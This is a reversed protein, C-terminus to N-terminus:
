VEKVTFRGFKPRWDFIGIEDGLTTLIETVASKNLLGDEYRVTLDASWEKCLFRTRMVRAQGVKVPAVLINEQREWLEDLSLRDGDFQLRPDEEIFIGAVALKGRKSKRAAVGFGAELCTGPCIIQEKENTYLSAFWELKSMAEFDADTKARKASIQKIQKSYRNLPNATQGNHLLLATTSKLQYKAIQRAM